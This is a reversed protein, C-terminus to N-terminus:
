AVDAPEADVPLAAIKELAERGGSATEVAHHEGKLALALMVLGRWAQTVLITRRRDHRDVWAGGVPAVTLWPLYQAATIVFM